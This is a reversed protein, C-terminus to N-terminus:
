AVIKISKYDRISLFSDILLDKVLEQIRYYTADGIDAFTKRLRDHGFATEFITPDVGTMEKMTEIFQRLNAIFKINSNTLACYNDLEIDDSETVLIRYETQFNALIRTM